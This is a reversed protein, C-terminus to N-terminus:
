QTKLTPTLEVMTDGISIACQRGPLTEIQGQSRQVTGDANTAVVVLKVEIGDPLQKGVLTCSKGAGLSFQKPMQPALEVAGLDTMNPPAAVHHQQESSRKSCSSAFLIFLSVASITILHQTRM